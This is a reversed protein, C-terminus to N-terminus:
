GPFFILLVIQGYVTISQTGSSSLYMRRLEHDDSETVVHGEQPSNDVAKTTMALAAGFSVAEIAASIVSVVDAGAAIPGDAGLAPAV